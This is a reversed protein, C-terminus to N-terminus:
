RRRQCGCWRRGQALTRNGYVRWRRFQVYGAKDLRRAYRLPAFLRVLEDPAHPTGIVWQVVEAPTRRGERKHRHARHEEHDYADVWRGPVHQLAAWTEAEAFDWDAMRRQVGFTTEVYDQWPKGREILEHKIGLAAYITNTQEAEFISGSDNVLAEPSGYEQLAAYLVVLYASLDQRRSLRSPLICRSYNDLVSICYVPDADLQHMDIYRLDM